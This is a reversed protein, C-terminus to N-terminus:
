REALEGGFERRLEGDDHVFEVTEGGVLHELGGVDVEGGFDGAGRVPDFHVLRGFLLLQGDGDVVILFDDVDVAANVEFPNQLGGGQSVGGFILIGSRFHPIKFKTEVLFM